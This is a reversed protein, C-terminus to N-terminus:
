STTRGCYVLRRLNGALRGIRQILAFLLTLRQLLKGSILLASWSNPPIHTPIHLAQRILGRLNESTVFPLDDRVLGHLMLQVHGRYSSIAYCIADYQFLQELPLAELALQPLLESRVFFSNTLTCCILTYGKAQGLCYLARASCGFTQNGPIDVFNIHPPITPNHEIIVIKPEYQVLHKWVHYDNGDIDISLLEFNTPTGSQTLIADLRDIDHHSVLRQLSVVQPFAKTLKRLAQAKEPNGEILLAQWGQNHWLNWTNSFQMGDWAGFEVCYGQVIGLRQLIESIIGDEGFQSTINRAYQQLTHMSM